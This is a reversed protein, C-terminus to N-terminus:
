TRKTAVQNVFIVLTDSVKQNQTQRLSCKTDFLHKPLINEKLNQVYENLVRETFLKHAYCCTIKHILNIKTQLKVFKYDNCLAM